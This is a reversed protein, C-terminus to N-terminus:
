HQDGSRREEGRISQSGCDDTARVACLLAASCACAQLMADAETQYGNAATIYGAYEAAAVAALLLSRTTSCIPVFPKCSARIICQDFMPRFVPPTASCAALLEQAISPNIQWALRAWVEMDTQCAFVICRVDNESLFTEIEALTINGSRRM